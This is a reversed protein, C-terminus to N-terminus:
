SSPVFHIPKVVTTPAQRADFVMSEIVDCIRGDLQPSGLESRVVRCGSAKGNKEVTFQVDIRGKIGPQERLAKAYEAYIKGKYRDFVIAISDDPAAAFLGSSSVVALLMTIPLSVKM